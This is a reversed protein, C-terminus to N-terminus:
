EYINVYQEMGKNWCEYEIIREPFLNNGMHQGVIRTNTVYDCLSLLDSHQHDPDIGPSAVESTACSQQIYPIKSPCVLLILLQFLCTM